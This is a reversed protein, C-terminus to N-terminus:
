MDLSLSRKGFRRAGQSVARHKNKLVREKGVMERIIKLTEYAADKPSLATDAINCVLKTVDHDVKKYAWAKGKLVTIYVSYSHHVTGPREGIIHLIGRFADPDSKGFLSEGMRYGARVRGGTVVVNTESMTVGAKALLRRMEELYPALHGQDMIANANLGDSIVIQGKVPNPSCQWSDRMRELAAISEPSLMEGTEPHSIYDNRDKSLTKVQLVNPITKVFDPTLEALLCQKADDYLSKVKASLQPNLDWPHKGHGTALDVGRGEVEKMKRRGEAYIAERSRKDGKDM